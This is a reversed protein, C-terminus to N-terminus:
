HCLHSLRPSVVHGNLSGDDGVIWLVTFRWQAFHARPDRMVHEKEHAVMEILRIDRPLSPPKLNMSLHSNWANPGQILQGAKGLPRHKRGHFTGAVAPRKQLLDFRAHLPTSAGYAM